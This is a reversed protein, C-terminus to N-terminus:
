GERLLWQQVYGNWVGARGTEELIQGFRSEREATPTRKAEFVSGLMRLALEEQERSPREGRSELEEHLKAIERYPRVVGAEYEASDDGRNKTCVAAALCRALLSLERKREVPRGTEIAGRAEPPKRAEKPEAEASPSGALWEALRDTSEKKDYAFARAEPAIRGMLGCLVAQPGLEVFADAGLRVAERMSETWRVPRTMQTSLSDAIALHSEYLGATVNSFVPTQLPQFPYRALEERFRDAAPQMLPSHFPASVKLPIVIAGQKKLTEGAERVGELRGSIVIQDPSNYNSIVVPREPKSAEECAQRVAEESAGNVAAMAGAGVQVAEQMLEGRRRVITVAQDFPIAGACSLATIEGLSHGAMAFPVAGYLKTFVRCAAVSVTLLAPQANATLTLEEAPGEFVLKALDFGLAAGAEEFASRAEPHSEYLAKGMGVYQSGQGPFMFVLKNV